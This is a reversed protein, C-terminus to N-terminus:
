RDMLLEVRREEGGGLHLSCEWAPLSEDGGIAVVRLEHDGAVLREFRLTEQGRTFVQTRATPDDESSGSPFLTVVYLFSGTGTWQLSLELRAAPRLVIAGLDGSDPPTACSLSGVLDGPDGGGIEIWYNGAAPLGILEFCGSADSRIPRSSPPCRHSSAPTMMAGCADRHAVIPVGALSRGEPDVLRGRVCHAALEIDLLPAAAPLEITRTEPLARSAHDIELEYRGAPVDSWQYRGDSDTAGRRVEQAAWCGEDEMLPRLFLDAGGLPVGASTVQGGLAFREIEWRLLTAEGAPLDLARWAHREPHDLDLPLLGGPGPALVLIRVPGPALNRAVFRGRPDSFGLRVPAADGELLAVVSAGALAESGSTVEVVLEAGPSLQVEVVGGDPPSIEQRLPAHGPSEVQLLARGTGAWPLECRGRADTPQGEGPAAPLVVSHGFVVADFAGGELPRLSVRAGPVPEDTRADRVECRVRPLRVLAVTGLDLDEEPALLVTREARRYGPATWLLHHPERSRPFLGDLTGQGRADGDESRLPVALPGSTLLVTTCTPLPEGSTADVARWRLAAGQSYVLEIHEESPVGHWASSRQVERGEHFALVRLEYSRDSRLGLIRFTGDAAVRARHPWRDPTGRFTETGAGRERVHVHCPGADAPLGAVRGQWPVGVPLTWLAPEPAGEGAGPFRAAGRFTAAPYGDATVLVSVPGVPLGSLQVHGERGTRGCAEAEVELSALLGVPGYSQHVVAGEVGHGDADVVRAALSAGPDLVLEGVDVTEDGAFSVPRRLQPYGEAQVVMELAGAALPQIRFWGRADTLGFAAPAAAGPVPSFVSVHAGRGTGGLEEADVRLVRPLPPAERLRVRAGFVPLGTPDVVRGEILPEPEPLGEPLIQPTRAGAPPTPPPGSAVASDTALTRGPAALDRASTQELAGPLWGPFLAVLTAVVALATLLGRGVADFRPKSRAPLRGPARRRAARRLERAPLLLLCRLAWDRRNGGHRRDLEARMQQLGRRLRTKVTAEPVQLRAAIARPSLDRFYRLYLASRYSPALGRLVEVVVQQLDFEAEEEIVLASRAAALERDSRSQERRHLNLALYRTVRALWGRLPQSADPRRSLAVLWAEQVLDEAHDEDRVLSRALRLLYERHQLLSEVPIEPSAAM